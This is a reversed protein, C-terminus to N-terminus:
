PRHKVLSQGRDLVAQSVLQIVPGPDGGQVNRQNDVALGFASRPGRGEPLFRGRVCRMPWAARNRGVEWGALGSFFGISFLVFGGPKRSAASLFAAPICPIVRGM